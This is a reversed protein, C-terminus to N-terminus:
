LFLPKHNARVVTNPLHGSPCKGEEGVRLPFTSFHFLKSYSTGQYPIVSKWHTSFHLKNHPLPKYPVKGSKWNELPLLTHSEQTYHAQLPSRTICPTNWYGRFGWFASYARYLRISPHLRAPQCTNLSIPFPNPLQPPHEGRGAAAM